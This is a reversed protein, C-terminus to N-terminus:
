NVICYGMGLTANKELLGTSVIIESAIQSEKTDTLMMELKNGILKLPNYDKCYKHCNKKSHKCPVIGLKSKCKYDISIPKINLIKVSEVISSLDMEEDYIIRAKHELSKQIRDLLIKIGNEKKWPQDDELTIIFPTVTKIRKIKRNFHIPEYTVSKTNLFPSDTLKIAKTLDEALSESPTNIHFLYLNGKKYMKEKNAMPYLGDFVYPKINGNMHLQKLDENKLMAFGIYQSLRFASENMKLDNKLELTITLQYYM